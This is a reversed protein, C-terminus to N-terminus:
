KILRLLVVDQPAVTLKLIKRTDGLNKNMWVDKLKYTTTKTDLTRKAVPDEVQVNWDFSV